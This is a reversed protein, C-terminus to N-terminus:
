QKQVNTMPTACMNKAVTKSCQVYTHCVHKNSSGKFMPWLHPVCTRQLQRQVNTMPTACMNKAVTKSCPDYTHCVHENSSGKFMPWLHPVCTRHLQRQVNTTPTACMNMAVTMFVHVRLVTNSFSPHFFTCQWLARKCSQISYVMGYFVLWSNDQLVQPKRM